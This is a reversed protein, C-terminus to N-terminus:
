LAGVEKFSHYRFGETPDTVILFDLLQVGLLEGARHLREALTRDDRSPTPDGSPHNHIVALSAANTLFAAKFVERPHVLSADLTGVSVIHVGILGHKVNLHLTLVKEVDAGALIVGALHAVDQPRNLTGSVPLPVRLPRYSVVLERVRQVAPTM